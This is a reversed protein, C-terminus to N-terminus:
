ITELNYAIYASGNSYSRASNVKGRGLALGGISDMNNLAVHLCGV